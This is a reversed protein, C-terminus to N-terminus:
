CAVLEGRADTTRRCTKCIFQSPPKDNCDNCLPGNMFGGLSVEFFRMAAVVLDIPVTRFRGNEINALVSRTTPYGNKTLAAALQETTIHRTKRFARIRKAALESERYIVDSM